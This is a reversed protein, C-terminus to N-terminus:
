RRWVLRQSHAVDITLDPSYTAWGAPSDFRVRLGLSDVPLRFGAERPVDFGQMGDGLIIRYQGDNYPGFDWFVRDRAGDLEVSMPAARISSCEQALRSPPLDRLGRSERDYSVVRRAVVRGACLPQQDYLWRGASHTLKRLEIMTSPPTLPMFLLDESSMSAAARAEDSMRTADRMTRTWQIRNAILAIVLLIVTYRKLLLGAAIAALVWSTLVYRSQMEISVPLIPLVAAVAAALIALRRNSDRIFLIVVCFLVAIVLCLGAAGADGRLARLIRMPATAIAAPWRSAPVTYGYGQLHPGLIAIRLVSYGALSVAHPVLERWRKRDMALLILPLPVFVEKGLMSVLYLVASLISRGRAFAITAAIAFILGEFYQRTMLEPVTQAVAPGAIALVATAFASIGDIAARLAFFLLAGCISVAILQHVYFARADQGFFTLDLKPSVLQLPAYIHAPYARWFRAGFFLQFFGNAGALNLHLPDDFTWWLRTVKRYLLLAALFVGSSAIWDFRRQIV